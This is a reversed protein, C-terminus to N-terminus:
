AEPGTGKRGGRDRRNSGFSEREPTTEGAGAQVSTGAPQGSPCAQEVPTGKASPGSLVKGRTRSGFSETGFAPGAKRGSWDRASKTKRRWRRSHDPVLGTLQWNGPSGRPRSGCRDRRLRLEEPHRERREAKAAPERPGFGEELRSVTKRGGGCGEERGFDTRRSGRGPALNRHSSISLNM